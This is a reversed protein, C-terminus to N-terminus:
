WRTEQTPRTMAVYAGSWPRAITDRLNADTLYLLVPLMLLPYAWQWWLEAHLFWVGSASLGIAPLVHRLVLLGGGRRYLRTPLVLRSLPIDLDVLWMALRQWAAYLLAIAGVVIVGLTLASVVYLPTWGRAGPPYQLFVLPCLMLWLYLFLPSSQRPLWDRWGDQVVLGLRARLAPSQLGVRTVVQECHQWEDDLLNDALRRRRTDSLESFVFSLARNPRQSDLDRRLGELEAVAMCRDLLREWRWFECPLYGRADDWGLLESIREFLAPSWHESDELLALLREEFHQRRDFSLLAESNLLGPLVEMLQRERGAELWQRILTMSIEPEPVTGLLYDAQVATAPLSAPPPAEEHVLAAEALLPRAADSDEDNEYEARWRAQALASEYAERLRQFAEADEDPRHVKLLRAYARKIAREDADAELGLVEWTDM